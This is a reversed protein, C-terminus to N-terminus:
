SRIEELGRREDDESIKKDKRLKELSTRTAGSMASPPAITRWSSIFHKVWNREGKRRSLRFPCKLDQRRQGPEVGPGSSRIVKEIVSLLSPDWPQVTLMSPEPVGLTSGPEVTPTGYYEV